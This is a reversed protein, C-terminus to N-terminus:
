PMCSHCFLICDIVYLSDRSMYCHYWKTRMHIEVLNPSQLRQLLQSIINKNEWTFVHNFKMDGLPQM